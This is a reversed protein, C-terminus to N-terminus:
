SCEQDSMGEGGFGHSTFLAAPPAAAAVGAVELTRSEVEAVVVAVSEGAMGERGDAM